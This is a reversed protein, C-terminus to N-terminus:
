QNNYIATYPLDFSEYLESVGTNANRDFQDRLDLKDQFIHKPYSEALKENKDSNTKLPEDSETGKNLNIPKIVHDDPSAVAPGTTLVSNTKSEVGNSKDTDEDDNSSTYDNSSADDDNESKMGSNKSVKDVKKDCSTKDETSLDHSGNAVVKCNMIEDLAMASSVQSFGISIALSFVAVVLVGANKTSFSKTSTMSM